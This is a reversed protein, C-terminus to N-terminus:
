SSHAVLTEAKCLNKTLSSVEVDAYAQDFGQRKPRACSYM